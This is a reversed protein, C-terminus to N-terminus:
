GQATPRVVIENVDVDAPEDIAFAIARAIAEPAIAIETASARPDSRPHQSRDNLRRLRHPRLRAFREDRALDRRSGPAASRDLHAGREQDGCLGGPAARDEPGRDLRRPRFPRRGPAPFVPLAAAIGYLVGKINVDIM